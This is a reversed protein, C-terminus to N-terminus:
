SCKFPYSMNASINRGSAMTFNQIVSWLRRMLNVINEHLHVDATSRSSLSSATCWHLHTASKTVNVAGTESTLHVNFTFRRLHGSHIGFGPVSVCTWQECCKERANTESSFQIDHSGDAPPYFISFIMKKSRCLQSLGVVDVSDTDYATDLLFCVKSDKGCHDLHYSRGFGVTELPRLRLLQTIQWFRFYELTMAIVGLTDLPDGVGFPCVYAWPFRTNM